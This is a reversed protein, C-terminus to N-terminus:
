DRLGQQTRQRARLLRYEATQESAGIAVLVARAQDLDAVVVTHGSQVLEAAAAVSDPREHEFHCDGVWLLTTVAIM